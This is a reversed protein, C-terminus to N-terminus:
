SMLIMSRTMTSLLSLVQIEDVKATNWVQMVARYSVKTPNTLAYGIPSQLLFDQIDHFSKPFPKHTLLALYNNTGFTNGHIIATKSICPSVQASSSMITHFIQTIIHNKHLYSTHSTTHIIFQSM